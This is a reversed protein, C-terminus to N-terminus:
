RTPRSSCGSNTSRPSSATGLGARVRRPSRSRRRGRRWPRWLRRGGVARRRARRPDLDDVQELGLAAAPSRSRRRGPRTRRAARAGAPGGVAGSWAAVLPGSGRARQLAPPSSRGPRGPRAPSRRGPRRARRPTAAWWAPMSGSNLSATSSSNAAPSTLTTNAVSVSDSPILMGARVTTISRSIFHCPSRWSSSVGPSYVWSVPRAPRRPISLRPSATTSYWGNMGRSRSVPSAEVRM